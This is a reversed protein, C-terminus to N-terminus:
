TLVVQLKRIYLARGDGGKAPELPDIKLGAGALHHFKVQLGTVEAHHGFGAVPDDGLALVGHRHAAALWSGTSRRNGAVEMDIALNHQGFLHQVGSCVLVTRGEISLEEPM